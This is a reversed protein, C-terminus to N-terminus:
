GNKMKRELLKEFTSAMEQEAKAKCKRIASDVFKISKRFSTGKVISRAIMANPQGNTWKKTKISNYGSFGIQTYIVGNEDRMNTAGLGKLLGQKQAPLVGSIYETNANAHEEPLAEVEDHIADLTVKAGEYIAMKIQKDANGTLNMLQSAYENLGDFQFGKAM